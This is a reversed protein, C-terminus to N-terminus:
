LVATPATGGRLGGMWMAEKTGESFASLNKKNLLVYVTGRFFCKPPVHSIKKKWKFFYAKLKLNTRSECFYQSIESNGCVRCRM